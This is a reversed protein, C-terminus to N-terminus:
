LKYTTWKPEVQHEKLFNKYTDPDNEDEVILHETPGIICDSRLSPTVLYKEAVRILDAKTTSLLRERAAAQEEASLGSRWAGVGRNSPSKPTDVGQFM